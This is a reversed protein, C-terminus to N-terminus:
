LNQFLFFLFIKVVPFNAIANASVRVVLDFLLPNYVPKSFEIHGIHGPCHLFGLGCHACVDKESCPGLAMDHLGGDVGRNTIEDFTANSTIELVSLSRIEDPTYFNYSFNRVVGDAVDMGFYCNILMLEISVFVLALLRFPLSQNTLIELTFPQEGTEFLM